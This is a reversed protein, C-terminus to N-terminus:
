YSKPLGLVNHGIFALILNTSIPAIRQLRAARWKREIDYERAVSFGGHTQMCEEGSSWAAESSLLRGLNAQEGCPQGADFLACATRVMLDAARYQAYCRALPFQIGQNQGIPRGFVVREKAYNVAKDIFYRCDGLSEHALLIRESNMGDLIVRFGKNEVGILNEVPVRLNDYFIENTQHNVMTEIPRITMGKGLSERIDVLLVSLGDTRQKVQDAPTTRVLLVMLDSNKARSTWIKQGNVVYHDGDRVATTKLNLTDSGTTPETVGFSQFRLRGSAIDPLYRERQRPTGHKVLIKMMYAQARINSASCGAATIEEFVVGGARIPLGAGGYEEPILASLYGADTMAQTFEQAHEHRAEQDRWYEGPFDKCIAQISQRIEPYDEGYPVMTLGSDNAEVSM